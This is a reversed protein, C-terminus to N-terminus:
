RGLIMHKVCCLQEKITWIGKKFKQPFASVYRAKDGFFIQFSCCPSTIFTPRCTIMWNGFSIGAVVKLSHCVVSICRPIIHCTKFISNSGTSYYEVWAHAIQLQHGLRSTNHGRCQPLWDKNWKSRERSHSYSEVVLAVKRIFRVAKGLWLSNISFHLMNLSSLATFCYHWCWCVFYIKTSLMGVFGFWFFNWSHRTLQRGGKSFSLVGM